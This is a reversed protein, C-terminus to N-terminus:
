SPSWRFHRALESSYHTGVTSKNRELWESFKTQANAPQKSTLLEAMLGKLENATLIVDDLFLGVIKGALMGLAPPVKVFRIRRELTDAVLRVMQNFTCTEPGIADVTLGAPGTSCQIAIRALDEVYVPQIRYDGSGFIPFVPCTRILWAINNVLIDGNGFVLTPRVISFSVGSEHLMSEQIGKGRYYPLDSDTSAHTVSIHVIRKVGANRACEFLTRTNELASEYTQGDYPFRIWYTNYLVDAGRLTETLQRRDNFSYSSAKM